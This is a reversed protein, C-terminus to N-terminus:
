AGYVHTGWHKLRIEPDLYIETFKRARQCFTYDESLYTGDISTDFYAFGGDFACEPYVERYEDFVDRQIMM